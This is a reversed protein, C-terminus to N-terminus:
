KTRTYKYGLVIGRTSDVKSLIANPALEITKNAATVKKSVNFDAELKTFVIDWEGANSSFAYTRASPDLIINRVSASDASQKIVSTSPIPSWGFTTDHQAPKPDEKKNCANLAPLAILLLVMAGLKKLATNNLKNKM